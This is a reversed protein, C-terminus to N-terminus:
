FLREFREREQRTRKREVWYSGSGKGRRRLPDRGAFRSFLGYPTVALYYMLTLLVRSNVYGLAEALRMWAVHFARAAPPVLLGALLLLAGLAGFIVVVGTRGRYLNWAAILILVGGVLLASKRAQADTVPATSDGTVSGKPEIL